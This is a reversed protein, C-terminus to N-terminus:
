EQQLGRRDTEQAARDADHEGRDHRRDDVGDHHGGADRQRDQRDGHDHGHHHAHEGPDHRGIAARARVRALRRAVLLLKEMCRTSANTIDTRAITLLLSRELRVSTPMTTPTADIMATMVAIVTMWFVMSRSILTSPAWVKWNWFHGAPPNAESASRRL